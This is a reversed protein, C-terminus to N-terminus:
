YGLRRQVAAQQDQWRGTSKYISALERLVKAVKPYLFDSAQAWKEYQEALEREQAGDEGPSYVGRLNQRGIRFGDAVDDNLVAEMAKRVPTCPWVGDEGEAANALLEGIKYDAPRRRDRDGCIEQARQVWETLNDANLEGNSDHGPIRSLNHLM